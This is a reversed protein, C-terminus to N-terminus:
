LAKEEIEVDLLDPNAGAQTLPIYADMIQHRPYNGGGQAFRV